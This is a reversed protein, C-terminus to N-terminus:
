ALALPWDRSFLELTGAPNLEVAAALAAEVAEEPSAYVGARIFVDVHTTAEPGLSIAAPVARDQHWADLDRAREEIYARLHASVEDASYTVKSSEPRRVADSLSM